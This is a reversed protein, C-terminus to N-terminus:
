LDPEAAVPECVSTRPAARVGPEPGATSPRGLATLEDVFDFFFFLSLFAVLVFAVATFVERYIWRQLTNM